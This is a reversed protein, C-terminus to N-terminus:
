WIGSLKVIEGMMSTRPTLDVPNISHVAGEKDFAETVVPAGSAFSEEDSPLPLGAAETWCDIKFDANDQSICHTIWCSWFCRREIEMQLSSPNQENVRLNQLGLIRCIRYGVDAFYTLATLSTLLAQRVPM